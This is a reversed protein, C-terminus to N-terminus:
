AQGTTSEAIEEGTVFVKLGTPAGTLASVRLFVSGCDVDIVASDGSSLASTAAGMVVFGRDADDAGAFAGEAEVVELPTLEVTPTTGGSLLVLVRISKWRKCSIVQRSRATIDPPGALPDGQYLDELDSADVALTRDGQPENRHLTLKPKPYITTM